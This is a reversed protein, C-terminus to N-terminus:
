FLSLTFIGLSSTMAQLLPPVGTLPWLWHPTSVASRRQLQRRARRGLARLAHRSPQNLPTWHHWTPLYLQQQPSVARATSANPASSPRLSRQATSRRPTCARPSLQMVLPGWPPLAPLILTCGHLLTDTTAAGNSPQQTGVLGLTVM